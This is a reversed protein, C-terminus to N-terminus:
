RVVTSGLSSQHSHVFRQAIFQVIPICMRRGCVAFKLAKYTGNEPFGCSVRRDPDHEFVGKKLQSMGPCYRRDTRQEKEPGLSLLSPLRRQGLNVPIESTVDAMKYM